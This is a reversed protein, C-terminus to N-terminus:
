GKALEAACREIVGDFRVTYLWVPLVVFFGLVCLVGVLPLAAEWRESKLNPLILFSPLLGCLLGGAHSINSSQKNTIASYGFYGLLIAASVCRMIPRTVTEFNLVMDAIFLGVLGSVGGSAGVVQVCPSEIAASLFGAGLISVFWVVVIRATGYKIEMWMSLVFFLLMNSLVHNIDVHVFQSTFWRFAQGAALDPAYRSGWDRLFRVPFQTSDSRPEVIWTLLYDYSTENTVFAQKFSHTHVLHPPSSGLGPYPCLANPHLPRCTHECLALACIAGPM